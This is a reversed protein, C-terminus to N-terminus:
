ESLVAEVLEDFAKALRFVAEHAQSAPLGNPPGSPGQTSDVVFIRGDVSDRLVDVEGYDLGMARAFRALLDLEAESFLAAPELLEVSTNTNSFRDALPRRKVYVLPARGGYLPTRLDVAERVGDDSEVVNDLLRQYVYGERQTQVPGIVIRGDHTANADSKEVMPGEYVTPDVALAYGAVTEWTEQVTTKLNGRHAGNISRGNRARRTNVGFAVDYSQQPDLVVRYRNVAFIKKAMSKTTLEGENCLIRRRPALRSAIATRVPPVYPALERHVRRSRRFGALADRSLALLSRTM